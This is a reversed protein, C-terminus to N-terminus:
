ATCVMNNTGGFCSTCPSFCCLSPRVGEGLIAAHSHNVSLADMQVQYERCGKLDAKGQGDSPLDYYWVQM